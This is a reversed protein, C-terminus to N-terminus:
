LVQEARLENPMLKAVPPNLDSLNDAINFHQKIRSSLACSNESIEILNGLNPVKTSSNCTHQAIKNLNQWTKASATYVRNHEELLCKVVDQLENARNTLASKWRALEEVM